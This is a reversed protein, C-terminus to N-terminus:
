PTGKRLWKKVALTCDWCLHFKWFAPGTRCMPQFLLGGNPRFPKHCRFCIM